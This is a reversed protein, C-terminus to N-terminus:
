YILKKENKCAEDHINKIRINIDCDEIDQKNSM